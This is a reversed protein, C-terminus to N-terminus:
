CCRSCFPGTTEKTFLKELGTLFLAVLADEEVKSKPRPINLACSGDLGCECREVVQATLPPLAPGQREASLGAPLPKLDKEDLQILPERDQRSVDGIRTLKSMAQDERHRGPQQHRDGGLDKKGRWSHPIGVLYPPLGPMQWYASGDIRDEGRRGLARRSLHLIQRHFAGHAHLPHVRDDGIGARNGLSALLPLHLGSRFTLLGVVTERLSPMTGTLSGALILGCSLAFGGVNFLDGPVTYNRLEQDFIRRLLLGVSGVLALSLGFWSCLRAALFLAPAFSHAAFVVGWGSFFCGAVILYLGTHFPFSFWWLPRNFTWVGRLLFIEALMARLENFPHKKRPSKWWNSEEFYSGGHEARKAGEGPVPYLEWRLHVPMRSYHIVRWLSGALFFGLGAYIFLSTFLTM